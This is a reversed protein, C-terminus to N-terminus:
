NSSDDNMNINNLAFDICQNILENRSVNIKNAIEDLKSIKKTDLRISIVIKDNFHEVKTPHFDNM